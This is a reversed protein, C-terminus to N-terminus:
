WYHARGGIHRGSRGLLLLVVGVILLIIGITWLVPVGLLFGLVMLVLGLIIM